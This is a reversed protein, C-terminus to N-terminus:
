KARNTETSENVDDVIIGAHALRALIAKANHINRDPPLYIESLEHLFEAIIDVAKLYTEHFDTVMKDMAEFDIVENELSQNRESSADPEPQTLLALLDIGFLKQFDGLIETELRAMHCELPDSPDIESFRLSRELEVATNVYSLIFRAIASRRFEKSRRHRDRQIRDSMALHDFTQEDSM